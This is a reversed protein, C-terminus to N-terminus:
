RRPTHETGPSGSVTSAFPSTWNTPWGMLAEAHRPNLSHLPLTLLAPLAPVGHMGTMESLLAQTFLVAQRPLTRRGDGWEVGTGKDMGDRANPALWLSDGTKRSSSSEPGSSAPELTVRRAEVGCETMDPEASPLSFPPFLMGQAM